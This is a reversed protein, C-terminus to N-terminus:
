KDNEECVNMLLEYVYLHHGNGLGMESSVRYPCHFILMYAYEFMCWYVQNFLHSLMHGKLVFGPHLTSFNLYQKM